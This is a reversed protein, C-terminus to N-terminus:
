HRRRDVGAYAYYEKKCMYMLEDGLKEIEAMNKDPYDCRRVYGVAVSLKDVLSGRWESVMELFRGRYQEFDESTYLIAAFEDGGVRYIRGMGGFVSVMCDATARIIEDGADHGLSDNVGKLGNVDVNVLVLDDRLQGERM